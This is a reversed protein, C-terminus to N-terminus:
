SGRKRRQAELEAKAAAVKEEMTKPKEVKATIGLEQKAIAKVVKNEDSREKCLVANDACFKRIEAAQSLIVEWEEVYYSCPFQRVGYLSVCGKDSVELRLKRKDLDELAKQARVLDIAKAALAELIKERTSLDITTAM